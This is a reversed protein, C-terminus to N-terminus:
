RRVARSTHIITGYLTDAKPTMLFESIDAVDDATTLQKEPMGEVLQELYRDPMDAILSSKVMGPALIHVRIDHKLWEQSLVRSYATLAAKASVYPATKIPPAGILFETSLIVVRAGGNREKLLPLANQVVFHLSKLQSDIQESFDKWPVNHTLKNSFPQAVSFVIGSLKKHQMAIKNFLSQVEDSRRLDALHSDIQHKSNSLDSKLLNLKKQNRGHLIVPGTTALRKAIAGGISGTAGLILVPDQV